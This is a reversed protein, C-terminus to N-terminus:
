PGNAQRLGNRASARVAPSPDGTAREFARRAEDKQANELYLWGLAAAAAGTRSSAPFRLLFSEFLARAAPRDGAKATAVSRWYLADEAIDGDGSTREVEAFLAAARLADGQRLLSWARDFSAHAARLPVSPAAAPDVLASAARARPLRSMGAGRGNVEAGSVWEDGPDLVVHGGGASRVEVRGSAVTVGTLKGRSASVQFRTGRVEVEADATTVRFREGSPLAAVEIVITGNELRLVDDPPVQVRTYRAAGIARVAARSRPAVAAARPSAAPDSGAGPSRDHGVLPGGLTATGDAAGMVPRATSQPPAPARWTARTTWVLAAVLLAAAPVGAAVVPWRRRERAAPGTALLRAAIARRADETMEAPVALGQAQKVLSRLSACRSACRPCWGIHGELRTDTLEGSVHQTLIWERPCRDRRRQLVLRLLRMM